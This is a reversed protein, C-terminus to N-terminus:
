QTSCACSDLRYLDSPAVYVVTQDTFTVLDTPAVYVVTQDTSTVLDTPVVYVVANGKVYLILTVTKLKNKTDTTFAYKNQM